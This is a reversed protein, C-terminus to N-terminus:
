GPLLRRYIRANKKNQPPPVKNSLQTGRCENEPHKHSTMFVAPFIRLNEHDTQCNPYTINTWSLTAPLPAQSAHPLNIM